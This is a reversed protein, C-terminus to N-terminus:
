THKSTNTNYSKHKTEKAAKKNREPDSNRAHSKRGIWLSLAWLNLIASKSCKPLDRHVQPNWEKAFQSDSQTLARIVIIIIIHIIM